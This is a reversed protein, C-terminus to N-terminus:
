GFYVGVPIPIDEGLYRHILPAVQTQYTLHGNGCGLPPVALSEIGMQKYERSLIDLNEEVLELPSDWAWHLKTPFLLINRNPSDPPDWLLLTHCNRQMAEKMHLMGKRETDFLLGELYAEYLGPFRDKCEKAIGKGM